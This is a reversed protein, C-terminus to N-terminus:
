VCLNICLKFVEIRGAGDLVANGLGHDVIGLCGALQFGAADDNLRGGAVCADSKGGDSRCSAVPDDDHHGFRHGDFAPLQHLSVASLEDQRLAGLAHLAGDGFGLLQCLLDGVAEKGSLEDIGGVRLRMKLGGTRFNPLVGVSLYIDEDGADARATRDGAGAFVEFCLLWRDLDNGYLGGRGGHKGGADCSAM